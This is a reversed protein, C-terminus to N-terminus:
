FQRQQIPQAERCILLNEGERYGSDKLRNAQRNKGCSLCFWPFKQSQWRRSGPKSFCISRRSPLGDECLAWSGQERVARWCSDGGAFWYPIGSGAKGLSHLRGREVQAARCSLPLFHLCHGPSASAIPQAPNGWCCTPSPIGFWSVWEDPELISRVAGEWDREQRLWAPQFLFVAM